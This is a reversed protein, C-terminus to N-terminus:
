CCTFFASSDIAQIREMIFTQKKVFTTERLEDPLRGILNGTSHAFKAKSIVYPNRATIHKSLEASLHKYNMDNTGGNLFQVWDSQLRDLATNDDTIKMNPSIPASNSSQIPCQNENFYESFSCAREENDMGQCSIINTYCSNPVTIKEDIVIIQPKRVLDLPGEQSNKLTQVVNWAQGKLVQMQKEFLSETFDPDRAFIEHLSDIANKWWTVSTLFQLFHNRTEESFPMGLFQLPLYLWGYPFSRWENPHKWPFSLGNDIAKAIIEPEESNNSELKLMWNDLGRDTNRIIFDLIILKEVQVKIKKFVHEDSWIKHGSSIKMINSCQYGPLPYKKFFTDAGVFGQLFLQFSGIKRPCCINGSFANRIRESIPSFFSESQFEVIDTYPVLNLELLRDLLSTASEAIYGINPILCSRGFLCPFLNRHVWKTMKPSLSGYPEEDRPKFVGINLGHRDYIFYSGSSGTDILKPRTLEKDTNMAYIAELVIHDFHTRDKKESKSIKPKQSIPTTDGTNQFVSYLIDRRHIKQSQYLSFLQSLSSISKALISFSNPLSTGRDIASNNNTHPSSLLATNECIYKNPLEEPGQTLIPQSLRMAKTSLM